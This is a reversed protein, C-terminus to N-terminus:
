RVLGLAYKSNKTQRFPLFRTIRGIEAEDEKKYKLELIVAADTHSFRFFRQQILLSQYQIYRDLTIRFKRDHSIFYSRQYSNLLTPSLAYALPFSMQHIIKAYSNLESLPGDPLKCIEKTGLENHKRKIEFRVRRLQHIDEGYWRIRYKERMSFGYNNHILTHLDPTDLYVNNIRRDPYQLHFSAPHQLVIQRVEPLSVHTIRYKREYRM